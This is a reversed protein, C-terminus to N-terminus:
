QWIQRTSWIFHWSKEGEDLAINMTICRHTLTGKELCPVYDM